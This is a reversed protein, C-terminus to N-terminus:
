VTLCLLKELEFYLDLFDQTRQGEKQHVKRECWVSKVLWAPDEYVPRYLWENDSPRGGTGIRLPRFHVSQTGISKPSIQRILLKEPNIVQTKIQCINKEDFMKKGGEHARSWETKVSKMRALSTM